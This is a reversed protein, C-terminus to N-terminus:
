GLAEVPRRSWKTQFHSLFPCNKEAVLVYLHRESNMINKPGPSPGFITGSHESIFMLLTFKCFGMAHWHLASAEVNSPLNCRQLLNCPCDYQSLQRHDKSSTILRNLVKAPASCTCPFPIEKHYGEVQAGFRWLHMPPFISQILLLHSIYYVLNLTLCLM